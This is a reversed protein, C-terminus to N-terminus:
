IARKIITEEYKLFRFNEIDELINWASRKMLILGMEKVAEMDKLQLWEFTLEITDEGDERTYYLTYDYIDPFRDKLLHSLEKESEKMGGLIIM